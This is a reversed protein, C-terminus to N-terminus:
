WKPYKKSNGTEVDRSIPGIIVQYVSQWRAFGICNTCEKINSMGKIDCVDKGM